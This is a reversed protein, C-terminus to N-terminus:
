LPKEQKGPLRPSGETSLLTAVQPAPTPVQSAALFVPFVHFVPFRTFVLSFVPFALFGKYFVTNGVIEQKKM